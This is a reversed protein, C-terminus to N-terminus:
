DRTKLLLWQKEGAKKFRALVYNGRLNKGNLTFEIKNEGWAKIRYLGSDWIKVTGAGYEGAPITGEFKRYELPHDETEVALRKDGQEVRIGKPVAWSKLVGDRELRLDYHLRRSHHEQVVFANGEEKEGNGKPEPTVSFDRKSAYEHLGARRIQDVTCEKAKKDLRLSRFRPARLRSDRTVNQYVIECVLEPKLWTIKEVVDKADITKETTELKAFKDKLSVLTKESFGTGLKGVFIPEDSDYLGLIL